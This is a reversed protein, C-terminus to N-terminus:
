KRHIVPLSGVTSGAPIKFALAGAVFLLGATVLWGPGYSGLRDVSYGMLAPGVALGLLFGFLVTGTGKGVLGQPSFDMVALMGVANWAVAGGGLLLAAPILIWSDIVEISALWLLLATGTTAWALLRLTRGYGMSREAFRPWLLRAAIGTLGVVAILSGAAAESWGQDENAFLPLFGIIAQSALGSIFGYLAIWRVSVPTPGDRRAEARESHTQPDVRGIMGILGGVPVALFTLVAVRWSWWGALLPLFIGGLFAGIQVGSQKIGTLVGREGQPINDVILSNTSPNGWGNPIGTLVAAFVLVGYVPSLAFATLTLGGLVLTGIVSRVAGLRDTLRGLLPSAVAGVLGTGAVLFGVEARSIEFEDILQAALVSAVIIPFTSIAMASATVAGLGARSFSRM